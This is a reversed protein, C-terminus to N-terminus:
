ALITQSDIQEFQARHLRAYFGERALLEQHTGQEVIQGRELVVIHDAKMITSLRHAIIITTRGVTLEDMAAQIHRESESDLASTAEDLILIPSNKLLARAIALRQRQGGSLLVGDEGIKTQLGQPFYEIFELAHASRAAALIETEHAEIGYAINRAITDAFLTTNQSVVTFLRRLNKLSMKRIDVGDIEIVGEQIDYFRPLLNVLTSKGAGSRGVLAITKKAPIVLNVHNLAPLSSDPYHFTVDKIHIAGLIPTPLIEQEPLSEQKEEPRDLFEFISRVATLGKQFESIFTTLRRIPTLLGVMASIVAAFSGVSTQWTVSTAFYLCIAIPVSFLLQVSSTGLSSTKVIKLEQKLNITTAEQFRKQEFEEANFLRIERYGEISEEALHTILGMSDQVKRSQNRILRNSTKMLWAVAPFVLFFFLSLRWELAFMVWVLGIALGGERLLTLLSSTCADSVRDVNYIIMSLLEGSTSKDFFTAPLLMFKKFLRERLQKVILCAGKNLYYTSFFGAVGRILFIGVVLFPLGRIFLADRQIFGENIIPKIMWAFFAMVGSSALTGLAGIVFLGIYPRLLRFFSRWYHRPPAMTSEGTEALTETREKNCSQGAVAPESTLASPADTDNKICIHEELQQKKQQIM